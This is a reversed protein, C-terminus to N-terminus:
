SILLGGLSIDRTQDFFHQYMNPLIKPLNAREIRKIFYRGELQIEMSLRSAIRILTLFFRGLNKFSYTIESVKCISLWTYFEHFGAPIKWCYKSAIFHECRTETKNRLKWKSHIAIPLIWLSSFLNPWWVWPSWKRLDKLLEFKSTEILKFKSGEAACDIEGVDNRNYNDISLRDFSFVVSLTNATQTSLRELSMREPNQRLHWSKQRKWGVFSQTQLFLKQLFM